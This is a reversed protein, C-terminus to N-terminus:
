ICTFILDEFTRNVLLGIECDSRQISALWGLKGSLGAVGVDGYRHWLTEALFIVTRTWIWTILISVSSLLSVREALSARSSQHWIFVAPHSHVWECRMDQVACKLVLEKSCKFLEFFDWKVACHPIYLHLNNRCESPIKDTSILYGSTLMWFKVVQQLSPSAKLARICLCLYTACRM